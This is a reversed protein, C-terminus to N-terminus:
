SLCVECSVESLNEVTSYYLRAKATQKKDSVANEFEKIYRIKDPNSKHKYHATFTELSKNQNHEDQRGIISLAHIQAVNEVHLKVSDENIYGLIEEIGVFSIRRNLFIEKADDKPMTQSIINWRGILNNAEMRWHQALMERSSVGITQEPGIDLIVLENKDADWYFEMDYGSLGMDHLASITEAIKRIVTRSLEPRQATVSYIERLGSLRRMILIEGIGQSMGYCIIEPLVAGPLNARACKTYSLFQLNFSIYNDAQKSCKALLGEVRRNNLSLVERIHSNSGTNIIEGLEVSAFGGSYLQIEAIM